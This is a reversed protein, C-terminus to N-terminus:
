EISINSQVHQARYDKAFKPSTSSAQAVLCRFASDDMRVLSHMAWIRWAWTLIEWPSIPVKFFSSHFVCQHNSLVWPSMRYIAYMYKIDAVKQHLCTICEGIHVWHIYTHMYTNFATFINQQLQWLVCENVQERVWIVDEIENFEPFEHWHASLAFCIDTKSDYALVLSYACTISSSETVKDKSLPLDSLVMLKVLHLEVWEAIDKTNKYMCFGSQRFYYMCQKREENVIEQWFRILAM